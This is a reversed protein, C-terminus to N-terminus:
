QIHVNIHMLSNLHSLYMRSIALVYFVMMHLAGTPLINALSPFPNLYISSADKGTYAAMFAPILVDSSTQSITGVNPDFTNGAHINNKMFGTTPYKLGYYNQEYRNAIVPINSLFTNFAENYYGNDANGGSRLSTAIACHTMTFSGTRSTPMDDYMFQIQNTRNDTRNTTLQIKLGKIPELNLELNIEETKSWVAPSTQGNDTILWGRNLAQDIYSEDTFGFAFDLGPSMPGYSRSQGFANGIEPYFLPLSMSQSSRYRASASRIMLLFRTTHDAIDRWTSRDEELVETVTFKINKDGRTLIEVSNADIVKTKVSFQENKTTKATVKV